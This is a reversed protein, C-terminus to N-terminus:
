SRVERLSSREEEELELELELQTGETGATGEPEM